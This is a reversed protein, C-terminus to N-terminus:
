PAHNATHTPKEPLTLAGHPSVPNAPARTRLRAAFESSLDCTPGGLFRTAPCTADGEADCGEHELGRGRGRGPGRGRERGRGRGEWTTEGAMVSKMNQTLTRASRSV